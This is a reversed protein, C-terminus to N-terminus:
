FPGFPQEGFHTGLKESKIDLPSSGSAGMEGRQFLAGGFIKVADRPFGIESCLCLGHIRCLLEENWVM